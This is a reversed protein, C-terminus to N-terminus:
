AAESPADGLCVDAPAPTELPYGPEEARTDGGSSECKRTTSEQTDGAWVVMAHAAMLTM